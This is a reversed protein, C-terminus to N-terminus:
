IPNYEKLPQIIFMLKFGVGMVIKNINIAISAIKNKAGSNVTHDKFVNNGTSAIGYLM